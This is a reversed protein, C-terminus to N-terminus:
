RKKERKLEMVAITLKKMQEIMAESDFSSVRSRPGELLQRELDAVRKQLKTIMSGTGHGKEDLAAELEAIRALLVAPSHPDREATKEIAQRLIEVDVVCRVEPEPRRGNVDPTVSSDFTLKRRIAVRKLIKLWGPSWFWATGVPLGGLSGLVLRQKSEDGHFRIWEEIAKRDQPGMMRLVVLTGVQTLIDKNIVAPRQTVVTVGLGRVRGRRVIDEFAGLVRRDDPGAKQPMFLDAEDMILHLPQKSLVFLEEAFDAVFTKQEVRRLLSLDLVVPALTELVWRAIARGSGPDIPLDGHSGGLIVVPLGEEKGNESSRLGWYVGVPDIIAVPLGAIVLEEALVGTLYTKGSGRQAVIGISQTVTEAPLFFDEGLRLTGQASGEAERVEDREDEVELREEDEGEVDDSEEDENVSGPPGWAGDGDEVREHERPKKAAPVFVKESVPSVASQGNM